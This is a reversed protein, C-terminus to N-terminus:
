EELTDVREVKKFIKKAKEYEKNSNHEKARKLENIANRSIHRPAVSLPYNVTNISLGTEPDIIYCIPFNCKRQYAYLTIGCRKFEIGEKKVAYIRKEGDAAKNDQIMTYFIKAKIGSRKIRAALEQETEMVGGCPCAKIMKIDEPTADDPAFIDAKFGCYPCQLDFEMDLEEREEADPVCFM